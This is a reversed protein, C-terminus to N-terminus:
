PNYHTIHSGNDQKTCGGNPKAYQLTIRPCLFLFLCPLAYFLTGVERWTHRMHINWVCLWIEAVHPFFIVIYIIMLIQNCLFTCWLLIVGPLYQSSWPSENDKFCLGNFLYKGFLVCVKLFPTEFKYYMFIYIYM